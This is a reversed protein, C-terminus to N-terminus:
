APQIVLEHLPDPREIDKLRREGLPRLEIAPPLDDIVIGRTADSLLIQGGKGVAAIRAARVVDLGTYGDEGVTPEGTHLGARFRVEADAPWDHRLHAVQAAVTAAVAARARSFAYFFADGQTDIELGGHRAFAERVLRRHTALVEAYRANGVRKLIATSGEIDTFVFTVTGSPLRQAHRRDASHGDAVVQRATSVLAEVIRDVRESPWALVVSGPEIDVVPVAVLTAPLYDALLTPLSCVVARGSEIAPLWEAASRVVPGTSAEGLPHEFWFRRWASDPAPVRIWPLGSLDRAELESRQALPHDAPLVVHRMERVVTLSNVHEVTLPSLVFSAQTSGDALGASPDTHDFAAVELDVKPNADAFRRLTERVVAAEHVALAIGVSLRGEHGGTQTPVLRLADDLDALVRQARPVLREGGSTLRAGDGRRIVLKTGVTKELKRIAQVLEGPSVGLRAAAQGVSLLESLALLYRLAQLDVAPQGEVQDARASSPKTM